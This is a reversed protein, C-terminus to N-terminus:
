KLGRQMQEIELQGLHFSNLALATISLLADVLNFSFMLSRVNTLMKKRGSENQMTHWLEWKWSSNVDLWQRLRHPADAVRDKTEFGEHDDSQQDSESGVDEDEVEVVDDLEATSHVPLAFELYDLHHLFIEIASPLLLALSECHKLWFM